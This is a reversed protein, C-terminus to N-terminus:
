TFPAWHSISPPASAVMRLSMQPGSPILSRKIQTLIETTIDCPEVEPVGAQM